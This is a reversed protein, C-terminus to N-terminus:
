RVDAEPEDLRYGMGRVTRINLGAPALKQRLRSVYVEIANPTIESQWGALTQLLREKNVVNPSALVLAELLAWERAPLDLATGALSATRKGLDLVLPGAQLHSTLHSHSRRILVRVRALVEPMRFPKALYDDAGADLGSVCAELTDSATLILVPLTQGKRRLDAILQLGDKGPLGLDVIAADFEELTLAAEALEASEVRDVTFDHRLLGQKLGEAVLADDEVLLIRM